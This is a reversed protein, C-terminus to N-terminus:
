SHQTETQAASQVEAPAAPQAPEAVFTSEARLQRDWRLLRVQRMTLYAGLVQAALFGSLVLGGRLPAHVMDIAGIAMGLAAAGMALFPASSWGRLLGTVATITVVLATTCLVDIWVKHEPCLTDSTMIVLFAVALTAATAFWPWAASRPPAAPGESETWAVVPTSRWRTSM